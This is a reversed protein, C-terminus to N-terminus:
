IIESFLIALPRRPGKPLLLLMTPRDPCPSLGLAADLRLVPTPVGDVAVFERGGVREIRGSEAVEIRRVLALPVALHEQPGYRVLLVTQSESRVATEPQGAAPRDAADWTVGAQRAIGEAALILAARGDGLLTAGSYIPLGRLSSHLPKVVIEETDLVADVVL